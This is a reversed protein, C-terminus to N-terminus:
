EFLGFSLIRRSKLIPNIDFKIKNIGANFKTFRGTDDYSISWAVCNGITKHIGFSFM